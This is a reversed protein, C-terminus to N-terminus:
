SPGRSPGSPQRRRDIMGRVFRRGWPTVLVKVVRRATRRTGGSRRTLVPPPRRPEDQYPDLPSPVPPEDLVVAEFTSARAPRGAAVSAHAADLIQSTATRRATRRGAWCRTAGPGHQRRPSAAPRRRPPDLAGGVRRPTALSARQHGVRDGRRVAPHPQRHDAHRCRRRWGSSRARRRTSGASRSSRRWTSTSTASCTPCSAGTSCPLRRLRAGSRSRRGGRSCSVASGSSRTPTATAARRARGARGRGLGRQPHDHRLPLRDAAPGDARPRRLALDSRRGLLLGVGNAFRHAPLGTVAAAARLARRHQRHLRRLGGPDHPLPPRGADLLEAETQPLHAARPDRRRPRPRLHPRRRRLCPCRRVGARCTEVLELVQVTAPVRYVVVADARASSRRAPRARPLLPRRSHRRAPGPGRGPPPRPVAAPRRRDGRRVARPPDAAGHRSRGCRRQAPLCRLLGDLDDLQDAATRVRVGPPRSPGARARLDPDEVVAADARALSPPTAPRCSSATAAAARGGRARALGLLDGAARAPAGGPHAALAVRPDAVAARARRAPWCAGARRARLAAGREVTAPVPHPWRDELQAADAHVVLRWGDPRREALLAAADLLVRSGKMPEHGGAYRFRVPARAARPAGPPSAVDPLGNEDVRLRDAPVGNAALVEAAIASPALILDAHELERRLWANRADLWPAISRARRLRRRRGGALVPVWSRDVLFQRACSWWFDHMTVVTAAGSAKATALM